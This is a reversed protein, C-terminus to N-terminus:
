ILHRSFPNRCRRRWKEEPNGLGAVLVVAVAKSVKTKSVETKAGKNSNARIKSAGKKDVVRSVAKNAARKNTEKEIKWPFEGLSIFPIVIGQSASIHV